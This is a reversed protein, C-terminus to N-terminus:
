GGCRRPRRTRLSSRASCSRARAGVRVATIEYKLYVWVGGSRAALMSVVDAPDVDAEAIRGALVEENVADALYAVLDTQNRPDDKGIQLTTVATEPRAPAYGTRYAAIM